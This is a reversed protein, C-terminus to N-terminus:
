SKRRSRVEKIAKVVYPYVHTSIREYGKENPHIGDPGNLSPRGAVGELFFPILVIGHTDAVSPYIADFAGTFAAGLNRVMKMGALVVVVNQEVLRQVIQDINDRTLNPDIGRLGDNAGTELIVMDPKLTLIWDIRSLAGSSTEGSIGANIVRFRYGNDYLKQQLQAPYAMEEGVGLGETLSNGMAVITGEPVDPVSPQTITPAQDCGWSLILICSLIGIVLPLKM